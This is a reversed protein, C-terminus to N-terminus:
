FGGAALAVGGIRVRETRAILVDFAREGAIGRVRAQVVVADAGAPDEAVMRVPALEGEAISRNVEDVLVDIPPGVDLEVAHVLVPARHAVSKEIRAAQLNEDSGGIDKSHPAMAPKRRRERRCQTHSAAIASNPHPLEFMLTAGTEPVM